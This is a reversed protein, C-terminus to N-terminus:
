DGPLRCGNDLVEQGTMLCFFVTSEVKFWLRYMRTYKTDDPRAEGHPEIDYERDIGCVAVWSKTTLFVELENRWCSLSASIITVKYDREAIDMQDYLLKSYKSLDELVLDAVLKEM